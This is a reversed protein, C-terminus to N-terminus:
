LLPVNVMFFEKRSIIGNKIKYKVIKKINYPNLEICVLIGNEDLQDLLKIPTKKLCGNIFILDYPKLEDYGDEFNGIVSKINSSDSTKFIQKEKEHLIKNNELSVVFTSILSLLSSSYGTGSGVNLVNSYKNDIILDILKGLTSSKLMFRKNNFFFNEDMLCHSIEKNDVFQTKDIESFLKLTLLNTINNPLLQNNIIIQNIHKDKM